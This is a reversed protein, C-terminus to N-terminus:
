LALVGNPLKVLKFIHEEDGTLANIYVLFTDEGLGGKFEYTLVENKGGTPVVAMRETEVKLRPNLKARAEQMTLKPAPLDRKHHSTLYGLAEYGLIQGNDLAVQIKIQDPYIIVDGEKYAFSIFLINRERLSYTPEMNKIGRSNLFDRALTRAREDSIKITPVPRANIYYVVHGGKKSVDATVVDTAKTGMRFEFSYAPIKGRVEGAVRVSRPQAGRLDVFRRALDQAQASTVTKGTLGLPQMKEIHDSFPGDYLLVPVEQLQADVRRFSNDASALSGRSLRQALGRQVETWHFRGTRSEREVQTMERNVAISSKYLSEMTERDKDSLPQNHNSKALSFAYDGVQTLFKSTRAVVNHSIPLQHLNEQASNANYWLDSFLRDLQAPSASALGKSLLAEVNKTRQLSSYFARQYKNQLLADAQRRANVQAVGWFATIVWLVSLATIAVTQKSWKM